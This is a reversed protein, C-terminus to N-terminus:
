LGDPPEFRERHLPWWWTDGIAVRTLPNFRRNRHRSRGVRIRPHQARRARRRDDARSCGQRSALHDRRPDVTYWMGASCTLGLDSCNWSERYLLTAYWAEGREYKQIVRNRIWWTPLWVGFLFSISPFRDLSSDFLYIRMLDVIDKDINSLVQRVKTFGM